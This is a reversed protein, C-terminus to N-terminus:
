NYRNIWSHSIAEGVPRLQIEMVAEGMTNRAACRYTGFHEREVSSIVLNSRMVSGAQSEVLSFHGQPSGLERGDLTWTFAQVRPVATATCALSASQGVSTYQVGAEGSLTPPGRMIM